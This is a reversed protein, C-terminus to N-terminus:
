IRLCASLQACFETFLGPERVCGHSPIVGYNQLNVASHQGDAHTMYQVGADAVGYLTVSSQSWAAHSGPLATTVTAAAATRRWGPSPHRQIRM